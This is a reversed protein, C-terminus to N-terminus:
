LEEHTSPTTTSHDDNYQHWFEPPILSLYRDQSELLEDLSLKEDQNHDGEQILRWSEAEHKDYSPVLWEKLEDKNLVSDKNKDLYTIFHNQQVQAFEPNTKEEEPSMENIHNMYEELTVEGNNDNDMEEMAEDVLIEKTRDSEEPHIFDKYEDKVLVSDSNRDAYKWRREARKFMNKYNKFNPDSNDEEAINDPYTMNVYHEWHLVEKQEPNYGEWSHVEQVEPKYYAWQQEINDEILKHHVVEIWKKLETVTALGDSDKDIEQDFLQSLKKKIEEYSPQSDPAPIQDAHLHNDMEEISQFSSEHCWIIDLLVCFIWVKVLSNM